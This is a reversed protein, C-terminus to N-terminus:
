NFHRESRPNRPEKKIGSLLRSLGPRSNTHDLLPRATGNTVVTKGRGLVEAFFLDVEFDLRKLGSSHHTFGLHGTAGNADRM